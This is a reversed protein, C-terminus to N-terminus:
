GYVRLLLGRRRGIAVHATWSIGPYQAILHQNDGQSFASPETPVPEVDPTTIIGVDPTDVMMVGPVGKPLPTNWMQQYTILALKENDNDIAM